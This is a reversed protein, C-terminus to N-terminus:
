LGHNWEICIIYLHAVDGASHYCSSRRPGFIGGGIMGSEIIGTGLGLVGAVEISRM